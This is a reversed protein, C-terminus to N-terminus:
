SGPKCFLNVDGGVSPLLWPGIGAQPPKEVKPLVGFFFGAILRQDSSLPSTQEEGNGRRGVVQLARDLGDGFGVFDWEIAEIRHEIGQADFCRIVGGFEALLQSCARLFQLAEEVLPRGEFCRDLFRGAKSGARCLLPLPRM